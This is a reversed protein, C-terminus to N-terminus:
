QVGLFKVANQTENLEKSNPFVLKLPENVDNWNLTVVRTVEYTVNDVGESAFADTYDWNMCEIRVPLEVGNINKTQCVIQEHTYGVASVKAKAVESASILGLSRPDFRFIRKLEGTDFQKVFEIQITDLGIKKTSCEGLQSLTSLEEDTENASYSADWGWTGILPLARLGSRQRLRNFSNQKVITTVRSEGFHHYDYRGDVLESLFMWGVISGAKAKNLNLLISENFKIREEMWVCHQSAADYIQRGHLKKSLTINHAVALNKELTPKASYEVVYSVDFAELAYANTFYAELYSLMLKDDAMAQFSFLKTATMVFFTILSFKSYKIVRRTSHLFSEM